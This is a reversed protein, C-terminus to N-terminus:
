VDLLRGTRGRAAALARRAWKVCEEADEIVDAPVGYYTLSVAPKDRYPKFPKMGRTEYDARNSHNVKFYLADRAM